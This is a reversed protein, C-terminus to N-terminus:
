RSEYVGALNVILCTALYEVTGDVMFGDIVDVMFSDIVLLINTLNITRHCQCQEASYRLFSWRNRWPVNWKFPYLFEDTSASLELCKFLAKKLRAPGMSMSNHSEPPNPFTPQCQFYSMTYLRCTRGTRHEPDLCRIHRGKFGVAALNPFQQLYWSKFIILCVDFRQDFLM